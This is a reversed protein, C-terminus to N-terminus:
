SVVDRQMRLPQDCMSCKDKWTMTRAEQLEMTPTSDREIKYEILREAAERDNM